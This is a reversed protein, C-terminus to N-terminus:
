LNYNPFCKIIDQESVVGLDKKIKLRLERIESSDKLKRLKTKTWDRDWGSKELRNCFERRTITECKEGKKKKAKEGKSCERMLELDQPISVFYDSCRKRPTRKSNAFAEAIIAHDITARMMRESFYLFVIFFILAAFFIKWFTMLNLCLNKKTM